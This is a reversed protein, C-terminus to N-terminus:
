PSKSAPRVTDHALSPVIARVLAVLIVVITQMGRVTESAEAQSLDGRYCRGHVDEFKTLSLGQLPETRRM